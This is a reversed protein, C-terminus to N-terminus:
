SRLTQFYKMTWHNGACSAGIVRFDPTFKESLNELGFINKRIIVGM